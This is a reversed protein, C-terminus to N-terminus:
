DIQFLMSFDIADINKTIAGTSIYDVGTEAIQRISDQTINGSAELEAATYGYGQNTKVAQQLAEVSFNDLLIRTAGADLAELLEEQSEVEIEVLVEANVKRAAQLAM